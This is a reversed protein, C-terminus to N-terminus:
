GSQKDLIERPVTVPYCAFNNFYGECIVENFSGDAIMDFTNKFLLNVKVHDHNTSYCDAYSDNILPIVAGGHSGDVTISAPSLYKVYIKTESHHCKLNSSAFAASSALALMSVLCIKKFM